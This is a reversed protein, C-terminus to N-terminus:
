KEYPLLSPATGEARHARPHFQRPISKRSNTIKYFKKEPPLAPACSCNQMKRHTGTLLLASVHQCPGAGNRVEPKVWINYLYRSYLYKTQSTGSPASAWLGGGAIPLLSNSVKAPWAWFRGIEMAERIGSYWCTVVYQCIYLIGISYM